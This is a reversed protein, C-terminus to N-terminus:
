RSRLLEDLEESVKFPLRSLLSSVRQVKDAEALLAVLFKARHDIDFGRWTTTDIGFQPLLKEVAELLEFAEHRRNAEETTEPKTGLGQQHMSYVRSIDHGLARVNPGLGHNREFRVRSELDRVEREEHLHRRFLMLLFDCSLSFSTNPDAQKRTVWGNSQKVILGIDDPVEAPKVLGSPVAYYTRRAYASYRAAKDQAVDQDYDRRNTKVEYAACHHEGFKPKIAWVDMRGASYGVTEKGVCVVETWAFWGGKRLHRALDDRLEDTERVYGKRM